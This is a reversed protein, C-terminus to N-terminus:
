ICTERQTWIDRSHITLPIRSSTSRILGAKAYIVAVRGKYQGSSVKFVKTQTPMGTAYYSTVNDILKEM